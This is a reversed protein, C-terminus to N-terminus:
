AAIRSPAPAPRDVLLESPSELLHIQWHVREGLAALAKDVDQAAQQPSAYPGIHRTQLGDRITLVYMCGKPDSSESVSPPIELAAWALLHQM